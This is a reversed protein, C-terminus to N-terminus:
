RPASRHKLRDNFTTQRRFRHNNAFFRRHGLNVFRVVRQCTFLNQIMCAIQVPKIAM